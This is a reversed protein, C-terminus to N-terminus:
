TKFFSEAATRSAKKAGIEAEVRAREAALAELRATLEEISLPGLPEGLVIGKPKKPQLDDLDM